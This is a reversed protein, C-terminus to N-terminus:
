ILYVTKEIDINKSYLLTAKNKWENKEKEISINYSYLESLSKIPINKNFM